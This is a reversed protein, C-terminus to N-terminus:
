RTPADLCITVTVSQRRNVCKPMAPRNQEKQAARALGAFYPADLHLIGGRMVVGIRNRALISAMEGGDVLRVPAINVAAAAARAASQFPSTSVIVGHSAGSRLCAGRIEDVYRKQVSETYKKAQAVVPRRLLGALVTAAIDVGGYANREEGTRVLRANEYGAAELMRRVVELYAAYPLATLAAVIERELENSIAFRGADSM